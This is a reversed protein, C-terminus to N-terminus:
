FSIRLQAYLQDAQDYSGFLTDGDGSFIMAGIEIETNVIRKLTVAPQLYSSGDTLTLNYSTAVELNGRWLTKRVEGLLSINDQEFYLVERNYGFIHHWSTQVNFYWENDTTYDIGAVLHAVEKGTSTLDSTLFAVQDIYVIEGRFGIQDLVTEWEFGYVHQRKFRAEVREDTLRATQLFNAPDSGPDGNFVINKVPFSVITPLTEWGYRYSVAFDARDTNWHLRLASSINSLSQSPKKENVRLNAAYDRVQQPVQGNSMISQRLNRYLAWDSDFYDIESEEFWPSVIAEISFRSGHLRVQTLWSPIKRDELDLTIFQRLDDPNITDLPSLQDSKGWRVRQKGVSWDWYTGSIRFFGEYLQLESSTGAQRNDYDIGDWEITARGQLRLGEPLLGTHQLGLRTRLRLLQHDEADDKKVDHAAFGIIRGWPSTTRASTPSAEMTDFGDASEPATGFLLQSETATAVSAQPSAKTAPPAASKEAPVVRILIEGEASTNHITCTHGAKLDVVIRRTTQHIGTRIATIHPNDSIKPAVLGFAPRTAVLDIYCRKPRDATAPLQHHSYDTNGSLQLIIRTEDAESIMDITTLEAGSAHDATTLSVTLLLLSLVTTLCLRSTLYPRTM